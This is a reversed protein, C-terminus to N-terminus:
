IPSRHKLILDIAADFNRMPTKLVARSKANNLSVDIPRKARGAIDGAPQPLVGQAPFGLREVLRRTLSLRDLAESGALHLIGRFDSEVLEALSQGLTVVDIPTRIEEPPVYISRGERLMPVTRELFSSGRGLCAFGMVLAVRAIVADARVASIITEAEVKTRAYLNVPRPRDEEVYNGRKGDFVNDTSLFILRANRRACSEAVAATLVVNFARAAYPHTECFDIDGIAAAHIVVDPCIANLTARVEAPRKLDLTRWVLGPREALPAKGSLAHVEWGAPAQEIVSGAVFGGGGTIALKSIL